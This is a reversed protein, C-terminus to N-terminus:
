AGLIKCKARDSQPICGGGRSRRHGQALEQEKM